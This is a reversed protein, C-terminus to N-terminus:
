LSNLAAVRFFEWHQQIASHMFRGSDACHIVAFGPWLKRRTSNEGCHVPVSRILEEIEVPTLGSRFQLLRFRFLPLMEWNEHKRSDREGCFFRNKQVTACQENRPHSKM